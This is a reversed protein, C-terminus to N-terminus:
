FMGGPLPDGHRGVGCRTGAGGAGMGKGVAVAAAGGGEVALGEAVVMVVLAFGDAVEGGAVTAAGEGEGGWAVAVLELGGEVFDDEAEGGVLDVMAAGAEDEEGELDGGVVEGSARAM